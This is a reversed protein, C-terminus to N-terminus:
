KANKGGKKKYSPAVDEAKDAYDSLKTAQQEVPEATKELGDHRIELVTGGFAEIFAPVTKFDEKYAPHSFEDSTEWVGAENKAPYINTVGRLNMDTVQDTTARFRIM